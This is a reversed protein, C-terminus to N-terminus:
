TSSPAGLQGVVVLLPLHHAGAPVKWSYKFKNKTPAKVKISTAPRAPCFIRALKQSRYKRKKQKTRTDAHTRMHFPAAEQAEACLGHPPRASAAELGCCGDRATGDRFPGSHACFHPCCCLADFANPATRIPCVSSNILDRNPM